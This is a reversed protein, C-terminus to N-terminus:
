RNEQLPLIKLCQSKVWHPINQRHHLWELVLRRLFCFLYFM